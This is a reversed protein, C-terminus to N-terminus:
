GRGVPTQADLLRIAHEIAFTLFVDSRFRDACRALSPITSPDGIEALVDVAAACVNADPDTELLTALMRAGDDSSQGRVLDCALLRVDADPDALLTEIHPTTAGPMARLADMAGTRLNADDSRLFPLTALASEPTSIQALGTFLAERVRPDKELGLAEALLSVDPRTEAIERAATWREEPSGTLLALRPEAGARPESPAASHSRVLPM